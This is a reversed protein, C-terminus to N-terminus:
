GETTGLLIDAPAIYKAVKTLPGKKLYWIEPDIRGIPNSKLSLILPKHERRQDRMILLGSLRNSGSPLSIYYENIRLVKM